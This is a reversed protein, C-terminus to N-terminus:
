FCAVLNLAKDVLVISTKAIPCRFYKELLLLRHLMSLLASTLEKQFLFVILIFIINKNAGRKRMSKAVQSLNTTFAPVIGSPLYTPVKVLLLGFARYAEAFTERVILPFAKVPVDSVM